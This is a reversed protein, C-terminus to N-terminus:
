YYNIRLNNDLISQFCGEANPSSTCNATSEGSGLIEEVNGDSNNIHMDLRFFDLGAINPLKSGNTDVYIRYSALTKGDNEYVPYTCMVYGSDLIFTKAKSDTCFGSRALTSAASNISRYSAAFGNTDGTSPAMAKSGRLNGRMYTTVWTNEKIEDSRKLDVFGTRAQIIPGVQMLDSYLKTIAVQFQRRNFDRVLGPVTLAAIVGIIAMAIMLETLTFGKKKTKIFM